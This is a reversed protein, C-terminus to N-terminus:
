QPGKALEELTKRDRVVIGDTFDEPIASGNPINVAQSKLPVDMGSIKTTLYSDKIEALELPVYVKKGGAGYLKGLPSDLEFYTGNPIGQVNAPQFRQPAPQGKAQQELFAKSLPRGTDPTAPWEAAKVDESKRGYDYGNVVV